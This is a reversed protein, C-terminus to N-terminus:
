RRRTPEHPLRPDNLVLLWLPVDPVAVDLIAECGSCVMAFHEGRVVPRRIGTRCGCTECTVRLANM